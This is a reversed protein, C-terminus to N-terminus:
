LVEGRSLNGSQVDRVKDHRLRRRRTGRARLRRGDFDDNLVAPHDKPEVSAFTQVM